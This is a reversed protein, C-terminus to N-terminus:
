IFIFLFRKSFRKLSSKVYKQKHYIKKSIKAKPINAYNKKNLTIKKSIKVKPTHVYNKQNLTIKWLNKNQTFM